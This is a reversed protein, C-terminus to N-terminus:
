RLEEPEHLREKESEVARQIHGPDLWNLTIGMGTWFWNTGYRRGCRSSITEDQHGGIVCNALQDVGLIVNLAYGKLIKGIM